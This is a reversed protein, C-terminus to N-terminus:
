FALVGNPRRKYAGGEGGHGGVASVLVHHLPHQGRFVM